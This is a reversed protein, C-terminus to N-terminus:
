ATLNLEMTVDSRIYESNPNQPVHIFGLKRYLNIAPKLKSNTELILSEIGQERAAEIVARGLKEGIGRGRASARVGMKTLEWKGGHPMLACAGLVEGSKKDIAFFIKGGRSLINEEPEQLVRRDIEEMVFHEDIWARNIEWFSERLEPRFPVVEVTDQWIKEFRDHFGQRDLCTEMREVAGMLDHGSERIVEGIAARIGEWIPQLREALEIGTPSLEVLRVRRDTKSADSLVLGRTTLEELIQNIAVHTVGLHIAVQGVATPGLRHLLSFTPFWAPKFDVGATQYILAGDQMLRDSLRRLRSGLGLEAVEAFFDM